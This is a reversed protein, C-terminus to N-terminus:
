QVSQVQLILPSWLCLTQTQFPKSSLFGSEMGCHEWNFEATFNECCINTTKFFMHIIYPYNISLVIKYEFFVRVIQQHKFYKPTAPEVVNGSSWWHIGHRTLSISALYRSTSRWPASRAPTERSGHPHQLYPPFVMYFRFIEHNIM